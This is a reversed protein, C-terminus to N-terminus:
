EELASKLKNLFEAKKGQTFSVAADPEEAAAAPEQVEQNEVDGGAQQQHQQVLEADRDQLWQSFPNM